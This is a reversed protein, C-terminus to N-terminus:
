LSLSMNFALHCTTPYTYIGQLYTATISTIFPRIALLSTSPIPPVEPFLSLSQSSSDPM